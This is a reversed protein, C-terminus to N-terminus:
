WCYLGYCWGCGVIHRLMYSRGLLLVAVALGVVVLVIIVIVIIDVEIQAVACGVTGGYLM